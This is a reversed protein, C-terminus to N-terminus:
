IGEPEMGEDLEEEEEGEPDEEEGNELDRLPIDHIEASDIDTEANPALPNGSTAM